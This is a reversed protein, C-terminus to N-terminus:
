IFKKLECILSINLYWDESCGSAEYLEFSASGFKFEVRHLRKIEEIAIM